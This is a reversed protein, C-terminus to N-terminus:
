TDGRVQMKGMTVCSVISARRGRRAGKPVGGGGRGIATPSRGGGGSVAEAHGMTSGRSPRAAVAGVTSHTAEIEIILIAHSRSSRDNMGTSATRRAKTGRSVLAAVAAASSVPVRLGDGGSLFVGRSPHERVEIKASPPPPPTAANSRRTKSDRGAAAVHEGELLNHFVNNYIEVYRADRTPLHPLPSVHASQLAGHIRYLWGPSDFGPLHYEPSCVYGTTPAPLCNWYKQPFFLDVDPPPRFQLLVTRPSPM